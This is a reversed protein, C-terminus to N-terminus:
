RTGGETTSTKVILREIEDMMLKRLEQWSPAATIYTRRVVDLAERLAQVRVSRAELAVGRWPLASDSTDGDVIAEAEELWRRVDALAAVWDERSSAHLGLGLHYDEGSGDMLSVVEKALEIEVLGSREDHSDDPKVHISRVLVCEEAARGMTSAITDPLPLVQAYETTMPYYDSDFEHRRYVPFTIETTRGRERQPKPLIRLRRTESM